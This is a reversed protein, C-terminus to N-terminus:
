AIGDSEQPVEDSDLLWRRVLGSNKLVEVAASHPDIEGDMVKQFFTWLQRDQFAKQRLRDSLKREVLDMFEKARRKRRRVVLEGSEELARRHDAVKGFLSGIGINRSAQTIVVPVQWWPDRQNERAMEELYAVLRGAGNLDAKNVVLIDAIELIGAKMAQISDGTEPMCVVVVTDAVDMVDLEVQGVGATEVMCFDKGSADLLRIADRAARALGGGSGRTALSRIFVGQDLTHNQMRIRDGLIAGGSFPSSPDLAVIGVTLGEGRMLRTLKDVLTSKGSGPAGTVGIVHAKGLHGQLFRMVEAAEPTEQELLTLLRSLASRDGALMNRALNLAACGKM